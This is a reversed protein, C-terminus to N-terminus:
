DLSWNKYARFVFGCHVAFLYVLLM